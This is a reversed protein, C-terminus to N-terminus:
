LQEGHTLSQIFRDREDVTGMNCIKNGKADLAYWSKFVPPTETGALSYGRLRAEYIKILGIKMYLTDSNETLLTTSLLDGFKDFSIEMARRFANNKDRM